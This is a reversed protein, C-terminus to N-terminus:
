LKTAHLVIDKLKDAVLNTEYVTLNESKCKEYLDLAINKIKAQKESMNIFQSEM